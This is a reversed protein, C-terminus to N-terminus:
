TLVKPPKPLKGSAVVFTKGNWRYVYTDSAPGDYESCPAAKSPAVPYKIAFEGTHVVRIPTPGPWVGARPALRLTSTILTTDKFLYVTGPQGCSDFGFPGSDIGILAHGHGDSTAVIASPCNTFYACNPNKSTVVTADVAEYYSLRSRPVVAMSRALGIGQARTIGDWLVQTQGHRTGFNWILGLAITPNCKPSFQPNCGILTARHAGVQVSGITLHIGINSCVPQMELINLSDKGRVYYASVSSCSADNVTQIAGHLELGYLTKPAVVAITVKSAAISWARPPWSVRASASSALPVLAAALSLAAVIAVVRRVRLVGLMLRWTAGLRRTISGERRDPHDSTGRRLM